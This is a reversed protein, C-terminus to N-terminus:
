ITERPCTITENKPLFELASYQELIVPLVYDWYDEWKILDVSSSIMLYTKHNSLNYTERSNPYEKCAQHMIDEQNIHGRWYKTRHNYLARYICTSNCLKGSGACVRLKRPFDLRGKETVELYKGPLGLITRALLIQKENM